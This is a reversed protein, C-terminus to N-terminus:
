PDLVEEDQEEQSIRIRLYYNLLVGGMAVFIACVGGWYMRHNFNERSISESTIFDFDQLAEQEDVFYEAFVMHTVLIPLLYLILALSVTMIYAAAKGTKDRVLRCLLGTMSGMAMNYMAFSVLPFTAQYATFKYGLEFTDFYLCVMQLFNEIFAVCIPAGIMNLHNEPLKVLFRFFFFSSVGEKLGFLAIM